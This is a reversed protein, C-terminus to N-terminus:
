DRCCLVGGKDATNVPLGDYSCDNSSCASKTVLAGEHFHSDSSGLCQWPGLPPEAENFGCRNPQTSALVRDLPACNKDAGLPNGLNGCGFIDNDGTGDDSCVSGQLSPQRVAFFLSKDPTGPPVAGACGNSSRSAVESKGECIHWGESCLDNASCTTGDPNASDDGAARNCMSTAGVGPLSWGGSCGAIGPYDAESLFGERQGDACGIEPDIPPDVPPDVPPCNPVRAISPTGLDCGTITECDGAFAIISETPTCEAEACSGIEACRGGAIHIVAICTSGRLEFRDMALCSVPPCRDDDDILVERGGECSACLSPICMESQALDVLLETVVQARIQVDDILVAQLPVENSDIAEVRVGWTGPDLREILVITGPREVGASAEIATEARLAEVRVRSAEDAANIATVELAGTLRTLPDDSCSALLLALLIRM